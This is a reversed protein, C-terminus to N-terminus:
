LRIKKTEEISFERTVLMSQAKVTGEFKVLVDQGEKMNMMVFAAGFLNALRIKVPLDYVMDAKRKVKIVDDVILKGMYTGNLFVKVDMEKIKFSYMSPNKIPIEASISLHNDEFGNIKVGQPDGIEIEEVNGCSSVLLVVLLLLLAKM